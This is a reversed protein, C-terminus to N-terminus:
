ERKPPYPPTLFPAASSRMSFRFGGAPRSERSRFDRALLYKRCIKRQLREIKKGYRQSATRELLRKLSKRAGLGFALGIALAAGAFIATLIM